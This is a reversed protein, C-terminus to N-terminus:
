EERWRKVQEMGKQGVRGRRRCEVVVRELGGEMGIREREEVRSGEAVRGEKRSSGTKEKGTPAGTKRM